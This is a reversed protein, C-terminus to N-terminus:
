APEPPSRCARKSGSRRNSASRAARRSGLLRTAPARTRKRSAVIELIGNGDLRANDPRDTYYQQEGAGAGWRGTDYDWYAPNPLTGASGDFDDSFVLTAASVPSSAVADARAQSALATAGALVVACLM